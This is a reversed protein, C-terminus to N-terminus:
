YHFAKIDEAMQDLRQQVLHNITGEEYRGDPDKAGAKMGTLVEIGEDITRVPYIHFMGQRIAEVVEEKLMLNQVNSEPIVCGQKGSLGVAKCVEFYGEIKENVGGIAQVEGKQNVSGTVALYQRIPVGSLESLLAYLEASSASDGEVPSYSQEFVLRASLSLPLDHAYREHLFGSLILVGKTHTAGGMQSLREIDVIGERGVGISATIRSPRGFAYDGVSLVALGNVQGRKEGAIDLLILGKSIMEEVKKQILNSRYIREEMQRNIHERTIVPAGEQMAYFNAERIVDAIEAFLTTLKSKDEAMRSSYEIVAALATPDLHLLEEKNCLSCVFAAYRAVNKDNRDMTTDFDAKVKFLEKFDPDLHYLLDYVQPNGMIIVKGTFPIPEPRLTRTVMYGLRAQPEEIELKQNALTQKLADWVLPDQFREVPIVLFGGNAKHASGARIMTYDTVLAGFRVEKEAYGFLRFLSPTLEIEAPAGKTESNDVILNVPYNRTPDIVPM